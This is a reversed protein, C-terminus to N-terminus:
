RASQILPLWACGFGWVQVAFTETQRPSWAVDIELETVAPLTLGSGTASLTLTAPLTGSAPTVTLWDAGGIAHWTVPAAEDPILPLLVRGPGSNHQGMCVVVKSPLPALEPWRYRYIAWHDPGSVGAWAMSGFPVLLGDDYAMAANKIKNTCDHPPMGRVPFWTGGADESIYLPGNDKGMIVTQDRHFRPSVAISTVGRPGLGSSIDVWSEGRDDSRYTGSGDRVFLTDDEHFTPSLAVLQAWWDPQTLVTWSAGGDDSRLTGTYHQTVFITPDDPYGSSVDLDVVYPSILRTWTLAGDGSRYVGREYDGVFFTQDTPYSPSVALMSASGTPPPNGFPVWRLGADTSRFLRNGSLAFLTQDSAYEPSAVLALLPGAGPPSTGTWSAGGDTSRLFERAAAFVTNDEDYNPSPVLGIRDYGGVALRTSLVTWTDGGDRSVWLTKDDRAYLTRDRAYDSSVALSYVWEGPLLHTWSEASNTSRRLNHGFDVGFLTKSSAFDPPISMQELNITSLAEWTDGEDYSIAVLDASAALIAYGSALRVTGVDFITVGLGEGIATWTAGGNRSRWLEQQGVRVYLTQDSAYFPSLLILDIGGEPQNVAQWHDGGDTSRLLESPTGHLYRYVFLTQDTAFTPSIGIACIVGQLPQAPWRWSRGGDASLSLGHDPHDLGAFLLNDQDFAPSIALACENAGVYPDGLAWWMRGGDDSRHPSDKGFLFLSGTNSIRMHYNPLSSTELRGSPAYSAVPWGSQFQISAPTGDDGPGSAAMGPVLALSVVLLM